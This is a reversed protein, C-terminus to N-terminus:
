RGQLLEASTSWLVDLRRMESETIIRLAEDRATVRLGLHTVEWQTRGYERASDSWDLMHSPLLVPIPTSDYTYYPVRQHAMGIASLANLGRTRGVRLASWAMIAHMYVGFQGQSVFNFGVKSNGSGYALEDGVYVHRTPDYYDTSPLLFTRDPPGYEPSSCAVTFPRLHRKLFKALRNRAKQSKCPVSLSYGM